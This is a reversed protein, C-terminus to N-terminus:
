QILTIEGESIGRVWYANGPELISANFYGNNYGYITGPIIIGDPDDIDNVSVANSVNGILNWGENISLTLTSIAVGTIDTSGEADFRLWYGTGTNLDNENTYTGDYSYLTGEVADPYLTGVSNDNVQLPISVLNWGSIHEVSITEEVPADPDYLPPFAIQDVWACDEPILTSGDGGDKVFAWAFTRTGASVPYNVQTWPTGGSPTPQYRDVEVGDIFFILGDYFYNGSTSYETAVRYNFSIDSSAIVEATVSAFTAQNHTIDASKASYIGDYQDDTVVSWSVGPLESVIEFDEVPDNNPWNINYGAFEWELKSFDGTEFNEMTHPYIEFNLVNNEETVTIQQTLGAYGNATVSFSYNDELIAPFTFQGYSNTEAPEIATDLIEVSAGAVPLGTNGDSVSGTVTVTSQQSLVVNSVTINNDTVTVNSVTQSIYGYSTVLLDYVGPEIMRHYDGVAPDTFVESNNFDHDIVTITADLADGSENSVIGRIGYLSEEMYLLFSEANYNWHDDLEAEPLLKVNSLELTMERNGHFYIMYDQRGGNVEYWDYGNIIGDNFGSMYGPPSNEQAADAYTHSVEQWWDDDATLLSWTDWPYSVVEAGGHHNSSLVFHHEGAFEMMAITEPQWSNGDPHDGDQPDPYNRNLDAGNANYRTAGWVTNNGSAYTGDPNALPNIWIEVGNVLDTVREDTGYNSLLYDILRLMLVYGTVEDGHMTSSYMFEPEDEDQNVNDSIKAFLLERGEVSNGINTVVCLDPYDQAFQVMMNVYTSYTPYTDWDMMADRTDAMKPEILTSPRPLIEFDYDLKQFNVLQKENAYAYVELGTTRHDISVIKSIKKLENRSDVSFKFYTESQNGAVIATSILILVAFNISLGSIKYKKM